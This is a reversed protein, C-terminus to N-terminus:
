ALFGLIAARANDQFAANALEPFFPTQEAVPGATKRENGYFVGSKYREDTIAGIYRKAGAEVTHAHGFMLMMPMAVWTMMWRKMPTMEEAASTGATGGPSMTVLRVAPYHRALSAMWMAGAYKAHAYAAMEDFSEGFLTGDGISAFDSVSSTELKPQPMRFEPVGRAAESGAYVVVSRVKGAELMAEALGAHGLVNVAFQWTVGDATQEGGGSGGLGGANLVLADVVPAEAAARRVSDLDTLDLILIDFISRGTSERLWAQAAKARQPNRCALIVKTTAPLLALQRACEKGLGANAGTILITKVDSM